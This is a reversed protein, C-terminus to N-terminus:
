TSHAGKILLTCSFPNAVGEVFTDDGRRADARVGGGRVQSPLPLPHAHSPCPLACPLPLSPARPPPPPPADDDGASEGMGDLSNIAEGGCALVVREMNRRKARRLALVGERALM